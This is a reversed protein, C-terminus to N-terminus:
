KKARIIHLAAGGSAKLKMEIVTNRKVKIRKIAVRTRTKVTEDDTYFAAEYVKGDPLFDFALKVTRENTNTVAGVFWDTGSRRAVTIHQGIEGGLVKTDDWVTPVNDFFELEPEDQIDSPKDYWYLFQLPSYMVVSQALQHASTTKIYRNEPINQGPKLGKQQYYCITHDAAGAVFRTFPQVTSNTADPMEENGRIGEQTLLNPYTRSFGTPRYEDHIDVLLNYKACKKVAEHLWKTWYFSGVQVFGFKIGKVGWKQYLPLIDDLQNALARQNVYLFVGIGNQNAYNIAEQLNLDSNPNRRPDVSIKTADSGVVYEYGYWGSDYHIYQLKHKVAFDVLEKSGKASLTTERMIKGPKIWATNEIQCPPNLNLLLYNNELLQGPKEAVMVVRWPTAYPTIFDVGDYMVCKLTNSTNTDAIFKTRSFDVMGAEAFCAFLGNGLEVTLPREVEKKLEAIPLLSYQSQANGCAWAKSGEPLSFTTEEGSIRLYQGGKPNEPFVFRFAFGENYARLILQVDGRVNKHQLTIVTQHYNDRYVSREGYVPYWLSDVSSEKVEKITFGRTWNASGTVGLASELVVAKGKYDVSWRLSGNVDTLVKASLIKDPSSIRLTDVQANLTFTWLLTAFIFILSKTM